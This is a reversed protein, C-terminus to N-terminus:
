RLESNYTSDPVHEVAMLLAAPTRAVQNVARTDTVLMPLVHMLGLVARDYSKVLRLRM